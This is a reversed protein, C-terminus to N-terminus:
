QGGLHELPEVGRALRPEPRGPPRDREPVEQRVGRAEGVLDPPRLDRLVLAGGVRRADGGARVRRQGRGQQEIRTVPPFVPDADVPDALHDLGHAALLEVAIELVVDEAREAHLVRRELERGGLARPEGAHVLSVILARERRDFEAQRLVGLEVHAAAAEVAGGAIVQGERLHDHLAAAQVAGLEQTTLGDVEHRLVM